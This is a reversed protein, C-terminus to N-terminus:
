TTVSFHGPLPSLSVKQEYFRREENVPFAM